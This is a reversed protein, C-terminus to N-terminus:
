YVDVFFASSIDFFFLQSIELVPCHIRLNLFYLIRLLFPFSNFGLLTCKKETGAHLSKVM